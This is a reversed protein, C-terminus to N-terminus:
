ERAVAWRIGKVLLRRYGPNALVGATHGPTLCFVRGRGIGHAWAACSTGYDPCAVELLSTTRASDVRVFYMEDKLELDHFGELIPHTVALARVHFVPHESPHYLFGGRVTEFFAGGFGYSALGAHLVILAGGSRVYTAMASEHRATAWVEKSTEPAIRNERAIILGRYSGLADWPAKSPDTFTDLALDLQRATRGLTELTDEPAHYFDGVLAAIRLAPM